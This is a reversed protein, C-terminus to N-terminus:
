RPAPGRRTPAPWSGAHWSSAPTLRARTAAEALRAQAQVWAKDRERLQMELEVIAAELQRQASVARAAVAMSPRGDPHETLTVGHFLVHHRDGSPTNVDCEISASAGTLVGDCFRRWREHQDQPLWTTFSQGLAKAASKVGLLALAADNAAFVTGDAALRMLCSPQTNFM